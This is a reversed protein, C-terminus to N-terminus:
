LVAGLAAKRKLYTESPANKREKRAGVLLAPFRLFSLSNLAEVTARGTDSRTSPIAISFRQGM